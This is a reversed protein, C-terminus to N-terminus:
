SAGEPPAEGSTAAPADPAASPTEGPAASPTEGAAHRRRRFVRGLRSLDREADALPGLLRVLAGLQRNLALAHESMASVQATLTTVQETLAPLSRALGDLVEVQRDASEGARQLAHVLHDLKEEAALTEHLPTHAVAEAEEHEAVGLASRLWGTFPSVISV